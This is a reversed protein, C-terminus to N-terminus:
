SFLNDINGQLLSLVDKTLGISQDDNAQEFTKFAYKLFEESKRQDFSKPLQWVNKPNEEM